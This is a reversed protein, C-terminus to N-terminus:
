DGLKPPVRNFVSRAQVQRQLSPLYAQNTSTLPQGARKLANGRLFVIADQMRGDGPNRVCAYFSSIAGVASRTHTPTPTPTTPTPTPTPCDQLGPQIGADVSDVLVPHEIEKTAITKSAAWNGFFESRSPNGFGETPTLTSLKTYTRLRYRMIQAPGQWPETDNERLSYVVLTYTHGSTKLDRCEVSECTAPLPDDLTYPVPELKWFALVPKIDTPFTLNSEGVLDKCDNTGGADGDLCDGPYIYIAQQIESAIYDMALSMEQQIQAKATEQKETGLLSIVLTMMAYMVISGVTIAMLLELITFGATKKQRLHTIYTKFVLDLNKRRM